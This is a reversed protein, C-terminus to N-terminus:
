ILKLGSILIMLAMIARLPKAPLKSSLTSGFIVGPISGLLLNFMLLYDVNGIGAHMVGAATVLLFAHAIDTGVLEGPSLRYLYIMALAFVSGSGISTLGVIFGLIVGIM